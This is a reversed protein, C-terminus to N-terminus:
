KWTTYSTLVGSKNPRLFLLELRQIGNQVDVAQRVKTHERALSSFDLPFRFLKLTEKKQKNTQKKLPLLM